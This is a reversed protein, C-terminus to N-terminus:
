GAKRLTGILTALMAWMGYNICRDFVYTMASLALIGALVSVSFEYMTPLQLVMKVLLMVFATVVAIVLPVTVIRLFDVGACRIVKLVSSVFGITSCSISALVAFAAGIIGWANALPFLLVIFVALRLLQWSTEIRPKGIAAFVPGTTAAISRIAGAVALIRLAPVIAMWNDGLVAMTFDDALVFVFCTLSLSLYSSMQLVRLYGLRLQELSDQLKSYAPFTVQGIANAIETVPAGGLNVALQYYGLAAVGVLSGVVISDIQTVLLVLVASGLIWKGYSFLEKAKALNPDWRPRTPCLIYSATLRVLNGALVGLVLAWVNGLILVSVIAVSFDAVSGSVVYAFQKRFDLEKQFHIVGINTFAQFLLSLSTASIILSAEPAGFSNSVYQAIIFIFATIAVGRLVSFTWASDMYERVDGKRQILAQQFGTQSFTDVFSITLLAIGMLGFDLPTLIRALIILRM